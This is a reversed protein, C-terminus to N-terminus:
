PQACRRPCSIFEAVAEEHKASASAARQPKTLEAFARPVKESRAVTAQGGPDQALAPRAGTTSLGGLTVWDGAERRTAADFAHAAPANGVLTGAM